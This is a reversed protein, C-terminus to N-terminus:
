QPTTQRLQAVLSAAAQYLNATTNERCYDDIRGTLAETEEGASVDAQPDAAYENYATIYGLVWAIMTDAQATDGVRRELWASCSVNGQGLVPLEQAGGQAAAALLMAAAVAPVGIRM